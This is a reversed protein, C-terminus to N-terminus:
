FVLIRRCHICRPPHSAKAELEEAATLRLHCGGCIGDALRAAGVGGDKLARLEDYLELLDDPILPVIDSRRRELAALEDDIARWAETIVGELEAKAAEAAGLEGESQEVQAELNERREMLELLEDEMSSKKRGLMEVERRLYDADRASMGGAYLRNQEADLRGEVIDLEGATKDQALATERLAGAAEDRQAVLRNVNEHATRFRELEPLTKRDHRLRDIQSDVDQLALLDNLTDLDKM